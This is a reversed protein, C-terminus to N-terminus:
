GLSDHLGEAMGATDGLTVEAIHMVRIRCDV